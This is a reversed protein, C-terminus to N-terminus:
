PLSAAKVLEFIRMAVAAQTLETTDVFFNSDVYAAELRAEDRMNRATVEDLSEGTRVAAVENSVNLYILMLVPNKGYITRDYDRGDILIFEGEYISIVENLKSQALKRVAPVQAIKSTLTSISETKLYDLEILDGDVFIEGERSFCINANFLEDILDQSNNAEWDIGMVDALYAFIRYIYGSSFATTLFGAQTLLRAADQSATSKGSGAPGTIMVVQPRINM